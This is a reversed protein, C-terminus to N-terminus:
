RAGISAELCLRELVEAARRWTHEAARRRAAEGFARSRPGDSLLSLILEAGVTPETPRFLLGDIGDRVIDPVGGVAAAVVPLGFAMAELLALPSGERLSPLIFVGGDQFHEVVDGIEAFHSIVSISKRDDEAFEPLISEGARGTGLLVLKALPESARVSRWVRPLVRSGKEPIWSGLFVVTKARSPDLVADVRDVGNAM